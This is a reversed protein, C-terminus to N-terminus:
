LGAAFVAAHHQRQHRRRYAAPDGAAGAQDGAGQDDPQQPRRCAVAAAGRRDDRRHGDGSLAVGRPQCLRRAGNTADYVPRLVDAAHQIDEIALREYLAMVDHDGNAELAKLRRRRIRREDGIAKEFISPNSTVGRLGTRSSWSRRSRRRRHLRAVPLRALGGPRTGALAPAPEAAIDAQTSDNMRQRNSRAIQDKGGGASARAHLRVQELLDKLPASAGFTRM